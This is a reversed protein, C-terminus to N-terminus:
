QFTEIDGYLISQNARNNLVFNTLFKYAATYLDCIMKKKHEPFMPDVVIEVLNHFGNKILEVVPVHVQLSKM